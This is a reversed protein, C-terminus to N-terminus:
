TLQIIMRQGSRNQGDLFDNSSDLVEISLGASNVILSFDEFYESRLTLLTRGSEKMIRKIESLVCELREWISPVQKSFLGVAIVFDVSSDPLNINTADIMEYSQKGSLDGELDSYEFYEQSRLETKKGEMWGTIKEETYSIDSYIVNFRKVLRTVKHGRPNTYPERQLRHVKTSWAQVDRVTRVRPHGVGLHVIEYCNHKELEGLIQLILREQHPMIKGLM